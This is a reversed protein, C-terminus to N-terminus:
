EHENSLLREAARDIREPTNLEGNEYQRRLEQVKEQRLAEAKIEDARAEETALVQGEKSLEIRDTSYQESEFDEKVQRIGDRNLRTIDIPGEGPSRRNPRPGQISQNHIEM